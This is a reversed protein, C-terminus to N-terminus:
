QPFSFLEPSQKSIAIGRLVAISQESIYSVGESVGVVDLMIKTAAFPELVDYSLSTVTKEGILILWPPLYIDTDENYIITFRSLPDQFEKSWLKGTEKDINNNM